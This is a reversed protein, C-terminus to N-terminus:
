NYTNLERLFQDLNNQATDYFKDLQVSWSTNKECAEIFQSDIRCNLAGDLVRGLDLTVSDHILQYMEIEDVTESCLLQLMWTFVIPTCVRYGESAWCELVASLMTLTEQRTGHLAHDVFIGFISFANGVVTHYEQQQENYKPCPLVGFKEVRDNGILHDEASELYHLMFLADGDVFPATYHQTKSDHFYDNSLMFDALTTVLRSVRDSTIDGSLKLITTQDPELMKFGCSGYLATACYNISCLGFKDGYDPRGTYNNDVWYNSCMDILKDITWTGERVYKYLLRSGDAVGAAASASAFRVNVLEKNFYICHMEDIMTLSIDGALMYLKNGIQLNESINQPWWPTKGQEATRPHAPTDVTLYTNQIGNVDALLGRTALSGATRSYTAVIDFDHTGAQRTVEVHNVYASMNGANGRLSDFSLRVGLRSEINQNRLYIAQLRLDESEEDMEFEPKEVDAWTLVNIIPARGNESFDLNDPLEDKQLGLDDPNGDGQGNGGSSQGNGGDSQGNDGSSQGNDGSGQGNDGSSQGNGGDAVTTQAPQWRAKLTIDETVTDSSFSWVKDQYIWDVFTYGEKKPDQPKDAKEGKTVQQAEVTTGGQTDFTVTCVTTEAGQDACSALLPCIMALALFLTLATKCITKM